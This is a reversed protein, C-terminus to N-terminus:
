TCFIAKIVQLNTHKKWTLVSFTETIIFVFLLQFYGICLLHMMIHSM